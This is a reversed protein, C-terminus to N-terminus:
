ALSESSSRSTAHSSSRGTTPSSARSQRQTSRRPENDITELRLFAKEMELQPVVSACRLAIMSASLAAEPPIAPLPAAASHRPSLRVVRCCLVRFNPIVIRWTELSDRLDTKSAIGSNTLQSTRGHESAHQRCSNEAVESGRKNGTFRGSLWMALTKAHVADTMCMVNM